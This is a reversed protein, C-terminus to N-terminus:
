WFRKMAERLDAIRFPKLILADVGPIPSPLMGAHATVMVVPQAAAIRKIALALQDGTMEPMQYDTIVVDFKGPAFQDLAERGNTATTVEHRDLELVTKITERVDPDDDALLVRRPSETPQTMTLSCIQSLM